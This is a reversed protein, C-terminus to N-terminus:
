VKRLALLLVAGIALLLGPSLSLAAAAAPGTARMEPMGYANPTYAVTHATAFAFPASAPFGVSFPAAQYGGNSSAQGNSSSPGAAGGAGGTMSPIGTPEM